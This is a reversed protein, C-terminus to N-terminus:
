FGAKRTSRADKMRFGFSPHGFRGGFRGASKRQSSRLRNERDFQQLTREDARDTSAVLNGAVDYRWDQEFSDDQVEVREGVRRNLDDYSYTTVTGRADIQEILNDNGDYGFSRQHGAVAGPVPPGTSRIRRNFADYVHSTTHADADTESLSNGFVDYTWSLVRQGADTAPLRRETERGLADWQSQTSRGLGDIQIAPHDDADYSIQSVTGLQDEAM